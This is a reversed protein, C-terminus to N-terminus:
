YRFEGVLKGATNWTLKENIKVDNKFLAIKRDLYHTYSVM